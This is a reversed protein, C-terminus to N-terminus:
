AVAAATENTNARPAETRVSVVPCPARRIVSDATSGLLFHALRGRSDNGLVILDAGWTQATAIIDDAPDGEVLIEEFQVSEPVHARAHDLTLRGIRRLEKMKSTEIVAYEPMFALSSDVVHVAGLQAGLERALEAAVDVARKAPSSDDVAVLIKNIM